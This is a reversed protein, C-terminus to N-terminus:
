PLAEAFPMKSQEVLCRTRTTEGQYVVTAEVWVRHDPTTPDTPGGKDWKIDYSFYLAGLNDYVRYTIDDADVPFADGFAEELEEQTLWETTTSMTKDVKALQVASDLAAEAAYFSQTSERESATAAQQNQIAFVLTASLLALVATIGILM